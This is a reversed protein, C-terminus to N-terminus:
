LVPSNQATLRQSTCFAPWEGSASALSVFGGWLIVFLEALVSVVPELLSLEQGKWETSVGDAVVPSYGEGGPWGRPFSAPFTATEPATSTRCTLIEANTMLPHFELM